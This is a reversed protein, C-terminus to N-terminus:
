LLLKQDDMVTPLSSSEPWYSTSAAGMPESAISEQLVVFSPNPGSAALAGSTESDYVGNLFERVHECVGDFFQTLGWMKRPMWGYTLMVRDDHLKVRRKDYCSHTGNHVRLALNFVEIFGLMAIKETWIAVTISQRVFDLPKERELGIPFRVTPFFSEGWFWWKRFHPRYPLHEKEGFRLLADDEALSSPSTPVHM